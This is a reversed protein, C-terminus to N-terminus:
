APGKTLSSARRRALPQWDPSRAQGGRVLRRGRDRGSAQPPPRQLRPAPGGRVPRRLLRALTWGALLDPVRQGPAGPDPGRWGPSRDLDRRRGAHPTYLLMLRRGDPAWSPDDRSRGCLRLLPRAIRVPAADRLGRRRGAPNGRQRVRDPRTEVLEAPLRPRAHHDTRRPHVRVLAQGSQRHQAYVIAKGNPSWAGSSLGIGTPAKLLRQLGTGDPRVSYLAHWTGNRSSRVLALRTGRPSWQHDGVRWEGPTLPRAQEGDARAVWLRDSRLFAIRHGDPSYHPSTGGRALLQWDGGDLRVSVVGLLRPHPPTENGEGGRSWTYAIRGNGGPFTAQAPVAAVVASLLVGSGAFTRAIWRSHRPPGPAPVRPNCSDMPQAHGFRRGGCM